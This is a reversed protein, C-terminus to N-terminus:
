SRTAARTRETAAVLHRALARDVARSFVLGMHSSAVVTVHGRTPDIAYRWDAVGDNRTAITVYPIDHPVDVAVARATECPCAFTSCAPPVSSGRSVHIGARMLAAAARLIPHLRLGRIPSGLVALSAVHAPERVTAAHALVGGLSHGVLHVPRRTRRHTAAIDAILRDTLAAFCGANWGIDAVTAHYGLARLRRTMPRLYFGRMLFGPVLVVPAGDGHLGTPGRSIASAMWELPALSERWVPTWATREDAYFRGGPSPTRRYYVRAALEQAAALIGLGLAGARWWRASRSRQRGHAIVHRGKGTLRRFM